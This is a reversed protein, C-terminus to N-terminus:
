EKEIYIERIDETLELAQNLMQLDVNGDIAELIASHIYELKEHTTTAAETAYARLRDAHAADYAAAYANHAARAEDAAATAAAYAARATEVCVNIEEIQAETKM